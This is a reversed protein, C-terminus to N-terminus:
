DNLEEKWISPENFLAELEPKEVAPADILIQLENFKEESIPFVTQDLDLEKQKAEKADKLRKGEELYKIGNFTFKPVSLAEAMSKGLSKEIMKNYESFKIRAKIKRLEHRQKPTAHAGLIKTEPFVTLLYLEKVKPKKYKALRSNKRNV